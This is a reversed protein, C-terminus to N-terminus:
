TKLGTPGIGAADGGPPQAHEGSKGGPNAGNPPNRLGGQDHIENRTIAFPDAAYTMPLIRITVIGDRDFDAAWLSSASLRQQILRTM